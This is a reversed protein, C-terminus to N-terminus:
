HGAAAAGPANDAPKRIFFAGVLLPLSITAALLFASHAGQAEAVTAVTGSEVAATSVSSMVTIMVAIGAAGAVQQVTGLVASGYSYFQPSM